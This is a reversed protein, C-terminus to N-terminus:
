LCKVLKMNMAIDQLSQIIDKDDDVDKTQIDLMNLEEESTPNQLFTILSYKYDKRRGIHTGYLTYSMDSNAEIFSTHKVYDYIDMISKPVSDWSFLTSIEKIDDITIIVKMYYKHETIQKFVEFFIMDTICYVAGVIDIRTCEINYFSMTTHYSLDLSM